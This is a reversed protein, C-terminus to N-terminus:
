RDSVHLPHSHRAGDLIGPRHNSRCDRSRRLDAGPLPLLWPRQRRRPPWQIFQEDIYRASELAETNLTTEGILKAVHHVVGLGM